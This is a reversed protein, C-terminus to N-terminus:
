TYAEKRHKIALINLVLSDESKNLDFLVRYNGVRFKYEGLSLDKLKNAYMM